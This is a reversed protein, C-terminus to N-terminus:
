AGVNLVLTATGDANDIVDIETKMVYNSLDVKLTELKSLKYYGVRIFGEADLRALIEPTGSFNSNEFNSEISFVWLDPVHLEKIYVSQGIKYETADAELFANVCEEYNDYAVAKSACEALAILRPFANQIQSFNAVIEDISEKMAILDGVDNLLALKSVVQEWTDTKEPEEAIVGKEVMFSCTATALREGTANNVFFQVNVPGCAYTINSLLSFKWFNFEEGENDFVGGVSKISDMLFCPTSKGNALTFAVEVVNSKDTPCAFIIESAKNSGQFVRTPVSGVALGVANFYFIM